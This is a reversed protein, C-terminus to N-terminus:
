HELRFDDLLLMTPTGSKAMSFVISRVHEFDFPRDYNRGLIEEFEVFFRQPMDTVQFRAHYLNDQQERTPRMDRLAVVIDFPEGKSAAVFSFGTNGSWDRAPAMGLFIGWRGQAESQAITAGDAPWGEPAKVLAPRIGNPQWYTLREAM